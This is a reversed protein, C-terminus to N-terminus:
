RQLAKLNRPARLLIEVKGFPEVITQALAPLWEWPQANAEFIHLMFQM